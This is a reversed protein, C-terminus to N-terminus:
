RRPWHSCRSVCLLFSGLASSVAPRSCTAAKTVPTDKLKVNGGFRIRYRGELAANLRTVPDSILGTREEPIWGLIIGPWRVSIRNQAALMGFRPALRLALAESRSRREAVAAITLGRHM